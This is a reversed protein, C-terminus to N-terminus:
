LREWTAERTLSGSNASCHCLDSSHHQNFGQDLLKGISYAPGFFWVLGFFFFFKIYNLSTSQM